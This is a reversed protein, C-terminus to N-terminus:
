GVLLRKGNESFDACNYSIFSLVEQTLEWPNVLVSANGWCSLFSKRGPSFTLARGPSRLKKAKLLKGSAPDWQWAFGYDDMGFLRKGDASFLLIEMQNQNKPEKIEIPGKKTNTLDWVTVRRYSGVALARSDPSFAVPKARDSATKMTKLREGTATD